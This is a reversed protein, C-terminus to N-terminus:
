LEMGRLRELLSISIFCISHRVIKRKCWREGKGSDSVAKCGTVDGFVSVM